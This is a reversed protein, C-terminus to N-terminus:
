LGFPSMCVAKSTNQYFMVFWRIKEPNFIDIKMEHKSYTLFSQPAREMSNCNKSVNSGLYPQM